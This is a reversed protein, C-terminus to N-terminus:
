TGIGDADRKDDYQRLAIAVNVLNRAEAAEPVRLHITQVLRRLNELEEMPMTKLSETDIEVVSVESNTAVRTGDKDHIILVTPLRKLIRLWITGDEDKRKEIRRNTVAANIIDIARSGAGIRILESTTRKVKRKAPAARRRTMNRRQEEAQRIALGPPTMKMIEEKVDLYRHWEGDDLESLLKKLELSGRGAGPM